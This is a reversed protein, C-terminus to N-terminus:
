PEREPHKEAMHKARARYGSEPQASDYSRRMRRFKAGCVGCIVWKDWKPPHMTEVLTAM